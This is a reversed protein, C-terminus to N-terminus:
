ENEEGENDELPNFMQLYTRTEYGFRGYFNILKKNQPSIELRFANMEPEFLKDIELMVNKGLGKGQHKEEIFLEELWVVYGGVENSYTISFICYGVTENNYEIMYGDVYPDDKLIYEFTTTYNEKPIQGTVADTRYFEDMMSLFIERDSEIIKRLM